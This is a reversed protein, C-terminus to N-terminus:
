GSIPITVSKHKPLIVRLFGDGYTAKISNTDVQAPVNVETAFEGYNIEMQHYVKSGGRDSRIGRIALVQRDLIVSFEVGRMGAVEVVVEFAEETELLDTPPRWMHSHRRTRGSLARLAEQLWPEDDTALWLGITKDMMMGVWTLTEGHSSGEIDYSEVMASRPRLRSAQVCPGCPKM